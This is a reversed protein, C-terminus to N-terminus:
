FEVGRVGVYSVEKPEVGSEATEFARDAIKEVHEIRVDRGGIGAVFSQVVPGGNGAAVKVDSYVIPGPAGFTISRDITAAVKADKLANKLDESPFPRYVRIQALGLKKGKSRYRDVVTRATGTIAGQTVLIVDADEAYYTNVTDYFRGTLEGFEEQVKKITKMSNEMVKLQAYKCEYYSDQLTLLGASIPNDPDLFYLPDRPPLFDDVERKELTDVGELAHTVIFGDIGYMIPLSVEKDEAIKFAIISTDYASQCDHCFISLWGTDRCVLQDTLEGHISIPASLARNAVGMVVPLRANSVIFLIEFMLALGQSASATFVRSGAISAGYCCSMASHESEVPVFEADLDGDYVFDSLREVMITQPTIPYAAIVDPDCLKVAHAISEDGTMGVIKGM